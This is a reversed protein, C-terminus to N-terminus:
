SARAAACPHLWTLSSCVCMCVRAYNHVYVCLWVDSGCCETMTKIAEHHEYSSEGLFGERKDSMQRKVNGHRTNM